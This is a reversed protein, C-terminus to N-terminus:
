PGQGEVHGEGLGETFYEGQETPVQSCKHLIQSWTISHHSPM